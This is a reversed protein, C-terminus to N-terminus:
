VIKPNVKAIYNLAKKLGTIKKDELNDNNENELLNKKLSSEFSQEMDIIDQKETTFELKVTM